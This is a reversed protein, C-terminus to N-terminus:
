SKFKNKYEDWMKEVFENSYKIFKGNVVNDLIAKHVKKSDGKFKDYFTKFLKPAETHNIKREQESLYKNIKDIVSM